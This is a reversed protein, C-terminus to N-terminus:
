RAARKEVDAVRRVLETQSAAFTELKSQFARTEQAARRVVDELVALRLALPADSAVSAKKPTTEVRAAAPTADPAKADVKKADVKKPDPKKADPKKADPKKATPEKTATKQKPM